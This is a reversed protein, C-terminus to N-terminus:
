EEPEIKKLSWGSTKPLGILLAIPGLILVWIAVGLGFRQALLGIALPILRGFLGAFDGLTMVTGSQGPMASYVQGQLISYWGSNFFGLLGLAALKVPLSPALLFLPFLVLELAASVRLYALGSVREILPILLLDGLLGVGTWIAVALGAAAPALGAADVLYLALFSYLTDLMLDSFELLILWRLVARRRLAKGANVLGQWFSIKGENAQVRATIARSMYAQWSLALIIGALGAVVWFPVRWRWGMVAAGGLLLPGIVVGLSGAFTWRTMNQEHRDPELDMLVAQSLSVYAGSAPYSLVYALMLPWFSGSVAALVSSVVFVSGGGPDARTTELHGGPHGPHTRDPKGVVGPVSILLGIQIYSLQLDARILPWAAERVGYVLEDLFEILLLIFIFRYIPRATKM